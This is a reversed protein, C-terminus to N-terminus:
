SRCTFVTQLLLTTEQLVSDLLLETLINLLTSL